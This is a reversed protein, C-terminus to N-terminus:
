KGANNILANEIGSAYGDVSEINSSIKMIACDTFDYWACQNEICPRDLLPCLKKSM